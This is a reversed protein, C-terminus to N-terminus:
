GWFLGFFSFLFIFLLFCPWFTITKYLNHVFMVVVMSAEILFWRWCFYIGEKMELCGVFAYCRFSLNFWFNGVFTASEVLKSNISKERERQNILDIIINVTLTHLCPILSYLLKRHVNTNSKNTTTDQKKQCKTSVINWSNHSAIFLAM